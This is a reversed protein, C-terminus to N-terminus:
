KKGSGNNVMTRTVGNFNIRMLILRSRGIPTKEANKKKTCSITKACVESETVTWEMGSIIMEAVRVSFFVSPTPRSTVTIRDASISFIPATLRTSRSECYEPM